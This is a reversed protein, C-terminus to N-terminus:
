GVVSCWLAKGEPPMAQRVLFRELILTELLDKKNPNTQGSRFGGWSPRVSANLRDNGCILM